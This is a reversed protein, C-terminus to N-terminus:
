MRRGWLEVESIFTMDLRSSCMMMDGINYRPNNEYGELLVGPTGIRFGHLRRPEHVFPYQRHNRKLNFNELFSQYQFVNAALVPVKNM